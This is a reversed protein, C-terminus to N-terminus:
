GYYNFEGTRCVKEAVTGKHLEILIDVLVRYTIVQGKKYSADIWKKLAEKMAHQHRNASACDKLDAIDAENLGFGPVGVYVEFNGLHGALEWLKNEELGSDLQADTISTREKLAQPTLTAM